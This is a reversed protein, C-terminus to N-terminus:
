REGTNTRLGYTPGNFRSTSVVELVGSDCGQELAMAIREYSFARSLMVALRQYNQPGERELIATVRRLAAETAHATV